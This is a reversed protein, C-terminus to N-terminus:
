EDRAAVVLNWLYERPTLGSDHVAAALEPGLYRYHWPEYMYCTVDEEGAPYSMVFGFRWANAAVWAGEPTRAWDELDWAPPGGRTKLDFVTGLQHESHGARASSRLAHEYGDKAVWGDFVGRQYEYSRYASQIELAVGAKEAATLLAVLDDVLVARLRSGKPAVYPAVGELVAALDVLDTPAYDAPLRFRTDLVTHRWESLGARPAPEDAVLCRPPPQQANSSVPLAEEPPDPAPRPTAALSVQATATGAIGGAGTTAGGREHPVAALLAWVAVLAVM